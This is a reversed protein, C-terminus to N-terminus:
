KVSPPTALPGKFPIRTADGAATDVLQRAPTTTAWGPSVETWRLPAISSALSLQWIATLTVELVTPVIVLWMGSFVSRLASLAVLLEVKASLVNLVVELTLTTFFKSGATTLGPSTDRKRIVKKLANVVGRLSKLIRSSRGAPRSTASSAM